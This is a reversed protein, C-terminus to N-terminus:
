GGGEKGGWGWVGAEGEGTSGAMPTSGDRGGEELCYTCRIIQVKLRVREEMM